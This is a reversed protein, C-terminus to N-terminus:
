DFKDIIKLNRPHKEAKDIRANAKLNKLYTRLVGMRDFLHIEFEFGYKEALRLQYYYDDLSKKPLGVSKAAELLSM